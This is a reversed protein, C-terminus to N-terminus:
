LLAIRGWLAEKWCHGRHSASLTSPPLRRALGLNFSDGPPWSPPWREGASARLLPAFPGTRQLQFIPILRPLIQAKQPYSFRHFVARYGEWKGGYEVPFTVSLNVVGAGLIAPPPRVSGPSVVTMREGVGHKSCICVPFVARGRAGQGARRVLSCVWSQVRAEGLVVPPPRGAPFAPDALLLLFLLGGPLLAAGYPCLCLGM